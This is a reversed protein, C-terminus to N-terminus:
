AEASAEPVREDEQPVPPNDTEEREERKSSEM